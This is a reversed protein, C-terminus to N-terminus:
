EKSDDREENLKRILEDEFDELEKGYGYSSFDSYYEALYFIVVLVIGVWSTLSLALDQFIDKAKVSSASGAGFYFHETLLMLFFTVAVGMLYIKM